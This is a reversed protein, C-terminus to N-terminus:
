WEGVSVCVRVCVCVCVCLVACWLVGCWTVTVVCEVYDPAQEQDCRNWRSSVQYINYIHIYFVFFGTVATDNRIM